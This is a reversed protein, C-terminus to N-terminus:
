WPAEEYAKALAPPYKASYDYEVPSSSIVEIRVPYNLKTGSVQAGGAVQVIFEYDPLYYAQQMNAYTWGNRSFGDVAVIKYTYADPTDTIYDTLFQDLSIAKVNTYTGFSITEVTFKTTWKGWVTNYSTDDVYSDTTAATEFKAISGAADPRKVDIKRFMYIDYAWKTKHKGVVGAISTPYFTRGDKDIRLLYGLSFQDWGLDPTYANSTDSRLFDTRNSYNDNNSRTVFSYLARADNTGLKADPDPTAENVADMDVFQSLAYGSVYVAPPGASYLINETLTYDSFLAAHEDELTGGSNRYALQDPFTYHLFSSAVPAIVQVTWTRKGKGFMSTETVSLTHEGVDASKPTYTYDLTTAGIIEVEDLSWVISTPAVLTKISFVCPDGAAISLTQTSPTSKTICGNLLVVALFLFLVGSLRRKFREM